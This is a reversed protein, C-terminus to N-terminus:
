ILEITKPEIRVSSTQSVKGGKVRGTGLLPRVGKEEEEEEWHNMFSARTRARSGSYVV